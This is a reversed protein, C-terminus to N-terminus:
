KSRIAALGTSAWLAQAKAGDLYAQYSTAGRLHREFFAVSMAYALGLVDAQKATAAKCFSCTVGCATPDDVFSVHNAGAITVELSPSRAKAYYTAYNGDAPACAQGFGGGTADTTEGLFASPISLSALADRSDPCETQADCGLPPKSDVPDLGLVAAFRPDRAAALVAAKGGRSHGM